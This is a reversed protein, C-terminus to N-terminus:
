QFIISSFATSLTQFFGNETQRFPPQRNMISETGPNVPRHLWASRFPNRANIRRTIALFRPPSCFVIPRKTLRAERSPVPQVSQDPLNLLGSPSHLGAFIGLAGSIPGSLPDLASIEGQAPMSVPASRLLGPDFPNPFTELSSEFLCTPLTSRAITAFADNRALSLGNRTEPEPLINQGNLTRKRCQGPARQFLLAPSRHASFGSCGTASRVGLM